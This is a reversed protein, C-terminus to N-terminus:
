AGTNSVLIVKESDLKIETVKLKAKRFDNSKWRACREAHKENKAVVVMEDDECWSIKDIRGVLFVNM